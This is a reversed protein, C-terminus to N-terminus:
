SLPIKYSTLYVIASPTIILINSLHNTKSEQTHASLIAGAISTDLAFHGSDYPRITISTRHGYFVSEKM